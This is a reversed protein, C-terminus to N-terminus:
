KIPLKIRIPNTVYLKGSFNQVVDGAPGPGSPEGVFSKQLYIGEIAKRQKVENPKKELFM